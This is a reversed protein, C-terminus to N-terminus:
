TTMATKRTASSSTVTQRLDTTQENLQQCLQRHYPIALRNQKMAIKLSTLLEEKTQITLKVSVCLM